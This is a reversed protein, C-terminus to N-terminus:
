HVAFHTEGIPSEDCVGVATVVASPPGIRCWAIMTEVVSREGEFVAEVSGRPKNAVWGGLGLNQAQRRCSERFLVGQVHGEITVHRRVIVVDKGGTPTSHEENTTGNM